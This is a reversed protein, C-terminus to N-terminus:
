EEFVAQIEMNTERILNRMQIVVGDSKDLDEIIKHYFNTIEPLYGSNVWENAVHLSPINEFTNYIDLVKREFKVWIDSLKKDVDDAKGPPQISNSEVILNAKMITGLNGLASFLRAHYNKKPRLGRFEIAEIKEDLSIRTLLMERKGTDTFKTIETTMGNIDNIASQEKIDIIAQMNTWGTTMLAFNLISAKKLLDSNYIEFNRTKKDEKWGITAHIPRSKLELDHFGAKALEWTQRMNVRYPNKFNPSTYELNYEGYADAGVPHGIAQIEGMHHSFLDLLIHTEDSSEWPLNTSTSTKQPRYNASREKELFSYFALDSKGLELNTSKSKNQFYKKILELFEKSVENTDLWGLLNAKIKEDQINNILNKIRDLIKQEKNKDNLTFDELIREAESLKENVVQLEQKKDRYRSLHEFMEEIKESYAISDGYQQRDLNEYWAYILATEFPPEGIELEIGMSVRKNIFKKNEEVKLQSKRKELEIKISSDLIAAIETESYSLVAKKTLNARESFSLTEHDMDNKHCYEELLPRKFLWTKWAITAAIRAYDINHSKSMELQQWCAAEKASDDLGFFSSSDNRSLYKPYRNEALINGSNTSLIILKNLLEIKQEKTPSKINMTSDFGYAEILKTLQSETFNSIVQDYLWDFDEENESILKVLNLLISKIEFLPKKEKSLTLLLLMRVATRSEDDFKKNLNFATVICDSLSNIDHMGISGVGNNEISTCIASILNGRNTSLSNVWEHPDSFLRKTKGTANVPSELTIM